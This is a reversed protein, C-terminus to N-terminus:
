SAEKRPSPRRLDRERLWVETGTQDRVTITGTPSRRGTVICPNVLQLVRTPSVITCATCVVEEGTEFFPKDAHRIDTPSNALFLDGAENRMHVRRDSPSPLQTVRLRHGTRSWCNYVPVVEQGVELATGCAALAPEPPLAPTLHRLPIESMVWGEVAHLRAHPERYCMVETIVARVGGYSVWDGAGPADSAVKCLCDRVAWRHAGKGAEAQKILFQGHEAHPHIEQITYRGVEGECYVTDGVALADLEECTIPRPESWGFRWRHVLCYGEWSFAWAIALLHDMDSVECVFYPGFVDDTGCWVTGDEGQTLVCFGVSFAGSLRRHVPIGQQAVDGMVDSLLRGKISTKMAQTNM